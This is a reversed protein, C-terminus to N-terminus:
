DIRVLTGAPLHTYLWRVRDLPMRICGHSVAAGLDGGFSRHMAVTGWTQNAFPARVTIDLAMVCCGYTQFEGGNAATLRVRRSITYIGSPTPTSGKGVCAPIRRVQQGDRFVLVERMRRRVVLSYSTHVPVGDSAVVWRRYTPGQGNTVRVRVFRGSRALVVLRDGSSVYRHGDRRAFDPLKYTLAGRPFALVPHAAADPPCSACAM